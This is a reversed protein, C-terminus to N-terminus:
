LSGVYKTRQSFSSSGVFHAAAYLGPRTRSGQSRCSKLVGAWSTPSLSNSPAVNGSCIRRSATARQAPESRHPASVNVEDGKM